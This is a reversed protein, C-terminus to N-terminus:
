LKALGYGIALAALLLHWVRIPTRYLKYKLLTSLRGGTTTDDDNIDGM